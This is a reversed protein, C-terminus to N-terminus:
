LTEATTGRMRESGSRHKKTCKNVFHARLLRAEPPLTEAREVDDAAMAPASPFAQADEEETDSAAKHRKAQGRHLTYAAGGPIEAREVDLASNNAKPLTTRTTDEASTCRPLACSAKHPGLPMTCIPASEM